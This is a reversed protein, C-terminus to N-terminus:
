ERIEILVTTGMGSESSLRFTGGALEARERMITLGWGSGTLQLSEDSPTFGQGDDTICLQLLDGEQSLTITVLTALAYKAVNNLAEQTIRFLAIEQKPTLRPFNEDIDVLVELGTRQRYQDAYSRIAGGLGYEELQSPRLEVMLNRVTRSIEKTLQRSDELTNCLDGGTRDALLNGIYALNLGLATLEQGIDDHLERSVEKRLDEEQVILRQAYKKLGEEAKVRESIDHVLKFMVRRGNWQYAGGVIEVPFVSGDKKRHYRLPVFTSSSKEVEQVLLESAEREASLDFALMGSLLEERRYGYMRVLSRNVDIIRGTDMEFIIIGYVENDFIIRFKSESVRLAEDAKKRETVDTIITTFEDPQPSYAYISLYQQTPEFFAEFQTEGGLQAIKGFVGIYDFGLSDFGPFIESINRGEVDRKRIGIIEEYAQNVSLVTFDVPQGQDNAIIRCHAIANLRNAFLASYRRESERLEEALIQYEDIVQHLHENVEFLKENKRGIRSMSQFAAGASVVSLLLFSGVLLGTIVMDNRWQELYDESALSVTVLLPAVPLRHFTVIRESGGGTTRYTARRVGSRLLSPLEAPVPGAVQGQRTGSAPFQALPKLDTSRLTISGNAGFDFQALLRNFHDVRMTSYVMGGFGGNPARFRRAVVLVQHRSIPDVLPTSVQLGADPHDRLVQFHDRGLCDSGRTGTSSSRYIVRCQRDTVELLEGGPLRRQYSALLAEIQDKDRGDWAPKEELEDVLARLSLDVKDIAASISEDIAKGLNQSVVEAYQEHQARSEQLFHWALVIVMLNCFAFGFVILSRYRYISIM